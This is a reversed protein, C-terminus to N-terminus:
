VERSHEGPAANARDRKEDEWKAALEFGLQIMLERRQEFSAARARNLNAIFEAAADLDIQYRVGNKGRSIIPFDPFKAILKRITPESPMGERRCLDTISGIM